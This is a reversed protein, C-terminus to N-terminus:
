SQPRAAAELAARGPNCIPAPPLGKIEYTNFPSNKVADLDRYSLKEKRGQDLQGRAQALERAYQVTADCELRMGKNLRNLLVGAVIPREAEVNTEREVISALTILQAQTMVKGKIKVRPAPLQVMIERFRATLRDSLHKASRNRGLWYTDPFWKGEIPSTEKGNPYALLKLEDAAKFNRARLREVIRACTFGEPFTVKEMTPGAKFVAALQAPGAELPLEYGGRAVKQLGVARAAELFTKADRVKGTKKLRDALTPPEWDEPVLALRDAPMKISAWRWQRDQERKYQVGGLIGLFVLAVFMLRKTGRGRKVTHIAEARAAKRRREYEAERAEREAAASDAAGDAAGPSVSAQADFPTVEPTSEPTSETSETAEESRAASGTPPSIL